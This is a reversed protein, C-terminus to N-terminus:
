NQILPLFSNFIGIIEITVLEDSGSVPYVSTEIEFAGNDEYMDLYIIRLGVIDEPLLCFDYYDGSCLPFRVEFHNYDGQRALYGEGNAEGGPQNTDYENSGSTNYFFCDYFWPDGPMMVLKNEDVEFLAGSNNDDFDIELSDGTLGWKNGITLEDDDVVFGLYLDTSSQMVYLTGTLGYVGVPTTYSDANAWESADVNGDIVATGFGPHFLYHMSANVSPLDPSPQFFLSGLIFCSLALIFIKTLTRYAIEICNM